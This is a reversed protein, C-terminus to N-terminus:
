VSSKAKVLVFLDEVTTCDRIEDGKVRIEYEEDVMAILSLAILSSWEELNRFETKASIQSADTNEFLDVFNSVFTDIDM